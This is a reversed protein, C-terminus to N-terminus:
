KGEPRKDKNAKDLHFHIKIHPKCYYMSCISCPVRPEVSCGLIGCARDGRSLNAWDKINM